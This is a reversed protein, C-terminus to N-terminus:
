PEFKLIISDPPNVFRNNPVIRGAAIINGGGVKSGHGYAIGLLPQRSDVVGIDTPIKINEQDLRFDCNIVAFSASNRGFISFQYPGHIMFAEEFTMCLDVFNSNSIYTKDALVSNAVVVNDSITVDNGIYCLRVVAGAAIRVNDGIICGEVIASPHVFSRKGIKNLRKLGMYFLAAGIRGKLNKFFSLFQGRQLIITRNLNVAINVQLLHFPSIIHAAFTNCQPVSYKAGKVLQEPIRADFHYVHQDLTFDQIETGKKYYIFGLKYVGTFPKEFPLVFRENFINDQLIFQLSSKSSSAAAIAEQLFSKTFYCNEEFIIFQDDKVPTEAAIDVLKLGLSQCIEEQWVSLAKCLIPVSSIADGFQHLISNSTKRYVIM